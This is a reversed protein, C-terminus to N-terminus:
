MTSASRTALRRPRLPMSPRAADISTAAADIVGIARRPLRQGRKPSGDRQQGPDAHAHGGGDDGVHGVLERESAEGARGVRQMTESSGAVAVTIPM